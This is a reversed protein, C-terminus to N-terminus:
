KKWAPQAWAQGSSLTPVGFKADYAERTYCVGGVCITATTPVAQGSQTIYTGTSQVTGCNGTACSGSSTTYGGTSTACSPSASRRGFLGKGRRDFAIANSALLFLMCLVFAYFLTSRVYKVM